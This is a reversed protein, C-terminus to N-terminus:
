VIVEPIKIIRKLSYDGSTIEYNDWIFGRIYGHTVEIYINSNVTFDIIDDRLRVKYTENETVIIITDGDIVDYSIIDNGDILTSRTEYGTAVCVVVFMAVFAMGILFLVALICKTKEKM